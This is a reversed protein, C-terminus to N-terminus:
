IVNSLPWHLSFRQTLICDAMNSNNELIKSIDKFNLFVLTLYQNKYLKLSILILITKKKRYIVIIDNVVLVADILMKYLM